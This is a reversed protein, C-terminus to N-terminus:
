GIAELALAESGLFDCGVSLIVKAKSFDPLVEGDRGYIKRWASRRLGDHVTEYVFHRGAPCVSLFESVLARESPGLTSRTLLVASKASSLAEVIEHDAEEWTIGTGGKRVPGKFRDPDYLSQLTCQMAASTSGGNIPHDPNGEIKIPRGDVTKVIMGYPFNGETWTSSYYLAEGPKQYEPGSVRSIIKREPKRKCGPIGVALGASAGMLKLVDRRNFDRSETFDEDHAPLRRWAAMNVKKGMNVQGDQSKSM